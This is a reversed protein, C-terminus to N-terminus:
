SIVCAGAEQQLKNAEVIHEFGEKTKAHSEEVNSHIADM